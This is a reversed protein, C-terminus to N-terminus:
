PNAEPAPPVKDLETVGAFADWQSNITFEISGDDSATTVIGGSCVSLSFADVLGEAQFKVKQALYQRKNYWLDTKEGIAEAAVNQAVKYIASTVRKRFDQDKANSYSELFDAM